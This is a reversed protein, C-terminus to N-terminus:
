PGFLPAWSKYATQDKPSAETMRALALVIPAAKTAVFETICADALLLNFGENAMPSDRSGLNAIVDLKSV